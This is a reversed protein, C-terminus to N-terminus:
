GVEKSFRGVIFCLQVIEFLTYPDHQYSYNCTGAEAKGRM